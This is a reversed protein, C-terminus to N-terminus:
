FKYTWGAQATHTIIDGGSGNFGAIESDFTIDFVARLRYSLDLEFNESIPFRFGAGGQAALGTDSGDWQRGAGNTITLDGSAFGVGLGGGIYPQVWDLNANFWVNALVTVLEVDGSEGLGVFGATTGVYDNAFDHNGYAVEIETRINENLVIGFAGGVVFGDELGINYDFRAGGPDSIFDYDYDDAFSYGGFGSIYWQYGPDPVPDAAFALASFALLGGLATAAALTRKM